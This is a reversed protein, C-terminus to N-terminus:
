FCVLLCKELAEFVLPLAFKSVSCSPLNSMSLYLLLIVDLGSIVIDNKQQTELIQLILELMWTLRLRGYIESMLVDLYTCTMAVGWSNVDVQKGLLICCYNLSFFLMFKSEQSLGKQKFCLFISM